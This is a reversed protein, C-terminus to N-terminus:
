DPWDLELVLEDSSVGLLASGTAPEFSEEGRQFWEVTRSRPDVILIEEVGQRFYFDLKNRSEDGPSVVEVVIAASPHYVAWDAGRVYVHDPVRYNDAKGVNLATRGRLGAAGARPGLRQMLQYDIDAHQGDPGPVVHYTGEWMEDFRDQGLSRRRELWTELEPPRESVFVTTM